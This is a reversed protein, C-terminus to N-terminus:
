KWQKSNGWTSLSHHCYQIVIYWLRIVSHDELIINPWTISSAAIYYIWSLMAKFAWNEILLFFLNNQAQFKKLFFYDDMFTLKSDVDQM